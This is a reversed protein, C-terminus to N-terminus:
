AKQSTLGLLASQDDLILEDELPVRTENRANIQLIPLLKTLLIGLMKVRIIRKVTLKM